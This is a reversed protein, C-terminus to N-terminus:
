CENVGYKPHLKFINSASAFVELIEMAVVRTENQVKKDIRLTFFEWWMQFNGSMVISTEIAQPFVYRADEKLIGRKRLAEYIEMSNALHENLMAYLVQDSSDGNKLEEIADPLIFNPEKTECYRQSRELYDAHSKRLIQRGCVRSINWIRVSAFGHRLIALHGQKVVREVLGNTDPDIGYCEATAVPIAKEDWILLEIAPQM